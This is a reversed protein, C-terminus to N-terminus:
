NGFSVLVKSFRYPGQNVSIGQSDWTEKVCGLFTECELSVLKSHGRINGCVFLHLRVCIHTSLVCHCTCFYM